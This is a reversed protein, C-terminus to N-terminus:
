FNRTAEGTTEGKEAKVKDVYETQIRAAKDKMESRWRALRKIATAPAIGLTRGGLVKAFFEVRKDESSAWDSRPYDPMQKAEIVVDANARLIKPLTEAWDGGLRFRGFWKGISRAARKVDSASQANKLRDWLDGRPPVPRYYVWDEAKALEELGPENGHIVMAELLIKRSRQRLPKGPGLYDPITQWPGWKVRQILGFQGDRLTFLYQAWMLAKGKLAKLSVPTPGRLGM